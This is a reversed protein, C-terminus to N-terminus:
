MQIITDTVFWQTQSFPPNFPTAATAARYTAVAMTWFCATNLTGSSCNVAATGTSQIQYAFDYFGFFGTLSNSLDIFTGPGGTPPSTAGALSANANLACLILENSAALVGTAGTTPTTSSANDNSASQDFGNTLLGSVELAIVSGLSNPATGATRTFTLTLAPEGSPVNYASGIAIELTGSLHSEVLDSNYTNHGDGVTFGSSSAGSDFHQEIYIIANGAAPGSAFVTTATLSNTYYGITSIQAIAISM